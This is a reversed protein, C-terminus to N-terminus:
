WEAESPLRFHRGTKASLWACFDTAARWSVRCVPQEPQNLPYGRETVSFQLFEGRELGSDHGPDFRAFQANSVACRGVALPKVTVATMPREDAHGTASGMVFTGGPVRRLDLKVGDGLDVSRAVGGLADQRRKAEAAEFPWGPVTPASTNEAVEAHTAEVGCQTPVIAEADEDLAAYLVNM